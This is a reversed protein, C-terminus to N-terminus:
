FGLLTASKKSGEYSTSFLVYSDLVTYSFAAGPLSFVQYRSPKGNVAGDKFTGTVAGPSSLYMKALDSTELPALGARAAEPTVGTKLKVIYGPWIGKDDYYAFVTFDDEFWTALQAATLSTGFATFFDSFKMQGADTKIQIEQVSGSPLSPNNKLGQIASLLLAPDMTVNLVGNAQPATVFYSAHPAQVVPPPPPAIPPAPPASPFLMPYVVFYGVVGLVIVVVIGIMWMMMKKSGTKPMEEEMTMTTTPKANNMGLKSAPMQNQTEPSFVIEKKPQPAMVSEPIPMTDGREISKMDSGMTRMQLTQRPPADPMKPGAPMGSSSPWSPKPASSPMSPSSMAPKPM